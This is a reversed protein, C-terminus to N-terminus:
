QGEFYARLGNALGRAIVDFADPRLILSEVVDPNSLFEVEVLAAVYIGAYLSMPNNGLTLLRMCDACNAPDAGNRRITVANNALSRATEATSYRQYSDSRVGRDTAAFGSAALEQLLADLVGTALRLGDAERPAGDSHYVETGRVRRDELGNFHISLVVEAGFANAWDIRPQIREPSDEPFAATRVRGDGTFDYPEVQLGGGEARPKRTVCVSAGEAELLDKLRYAVSLTLEHEFLPIGDTPHRPVTGGRTFGSAGIVWYDDHGPDLCIRRGDLPGRPAPAPAPTPAPTPVPIPTTTPTPEPLEMGDESNALARRGLGTTSLTALLPATIGIVLVLAL